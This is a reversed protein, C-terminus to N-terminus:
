NAVGLGFIVDGHAQRPPGIGVEARPALALNFQQSVVEIALVALDIRQVRTWQDARTAGGLCDAGEGSVRGNKEVVQALHVKALEVPPGKFLQALCVSM